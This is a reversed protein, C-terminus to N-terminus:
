PVPPKRRPWQKEGVTAGAVNADGGDLVPPSGGRAVLSGAVAEFAPQLRRGGGPACRVVAETGPRIGDITGIGALRCPCFRDLTPLCVSPLSVFVSQGCKPEPFWTASESGHVPSLRKM